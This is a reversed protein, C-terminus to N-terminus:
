HINTVLAGKSCCYYSILDQHVVKGVIAIAVSLGVIDIAKQVAEPAEFEVFGFCFGRNSRVQIGHTSLM